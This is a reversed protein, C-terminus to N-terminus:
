NVDYRGGPRLRRELRDLFEEQPVRRRVSNALEGVVERMRESFARQSRFRLTKAISELSHGPNRLLAYGRLLRAGLVLMRPSALGASECQRYLSRRSLRTAAALDLASQFHTPERFLQTVARSLELDLMRLSPSIRGIMERALPDGGVREVVGRLRTESDDYPSLVIEVVGSQSLRTVARAGAPSLRTYVAVPTSPFYSLLTEVSSLEMSGNLAPDVISLDFLGERLLKYLSKWDAATEVRHDPGLARKLQALQPPPLLAAVFM